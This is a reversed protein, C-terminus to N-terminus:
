GRLKDVLESVVWQYTRREAGRENESRQYDSTVRSLDASIKVDPVVVQKEVVTPKVDMVEMGIYQAFAILGNINKFALDMISIEKAVEGEESKDKDIWAILDQATKINIDEGEEYTM